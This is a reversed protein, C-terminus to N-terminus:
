NGIQAEGTSANGGRTQLPQASSCSACGSKKEDVPATYDSMEMVGFTDGNDMADFGEYKSYTDPSSYPTVRNCGVSSMFILLLLAAAFWFLYSTKM